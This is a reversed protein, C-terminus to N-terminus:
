LYKSEEMRKRSGNDIKIRHNRGVNQDGSMVMNKTKDANVELGNEKSGVLLADANKKITHVSGGLIISGDACVLLQPTYNLKVGDEKVQVRRIAYELAHNFFM